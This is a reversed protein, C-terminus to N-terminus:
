HAEYVHEGSWYGGVVRWRCGSGGGRRALGKVKVTYM